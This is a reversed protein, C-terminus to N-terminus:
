KANLYEKSSNTPSFTNERDQEEVMKAGGGEIKNKNEAQQYEWQIKESIDMFSKAEENHLCNQTKFTIYIFCEKFIVKLENIVKFILLETGLLAIGIEEILIFSSLFLVFTKINIQKQFSLSSM